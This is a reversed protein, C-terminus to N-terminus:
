APLIEESSYELRIPYAKRLHDFLSAPEQSQLLAQMNLHDQEIDYATVEVGQKNAVLLDGKLKKDLQFFKCCADFIVETGKLKGDLSYGAIHPTGLEVIKLLDLSVDPESEWADLICLLDGQSKLRALLANNDVVAGRAANILIKGPTLSKLVKQSFLHFSPFDGDTTLPTHITLIDQKLVESFSCLKSGYESDKSLFPDYILYHISLADLCKAFLGGINGAGIIGVSLAKWDFKKKDSLHALASFVYEVVSRANCGPAHYFAINQQKLYETDVHDIGSTASAVFKISSGELLSKDVRTISRLLLVDASKVAQANINRGSLTQMEGLNRFVGVKAINEDAIIKM